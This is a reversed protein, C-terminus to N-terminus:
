RGAAPAVLPLADVQPRVPGPKAPWPPGWSGTVFACYDGEEALSAAHLANLILEGEQEPRVTRDVETVRTERQLHTGKGSVYAFCHGRDTVSKLNRRSLTGFTKLLLDDNAGKRGLSNM